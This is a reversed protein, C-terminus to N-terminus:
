LFRGYDVLTARTAMEERWEERALVQQAEELTKGLEELEGWISELEDTVKTIRDQLQKITM